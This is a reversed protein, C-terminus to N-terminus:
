LYNFEVLATIVSGSVFNGIVPQRWQIFFIQFEFFFGQFEVKM